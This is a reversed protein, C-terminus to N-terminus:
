PRSPFPGDTSAPQPPMGATRPIDPACSVDFELRQQQARIEPIPSLSSWAQGRPRRSPKGSILCFGGRAATRVAIKSPQSHTAINDIATLRAGFCIRSLRHRNRAWLPQGPIDATGDSDFPFCVHRSCRTETAITSDRPPIEGGRAGLVTCSGRSECPERHEDTAM